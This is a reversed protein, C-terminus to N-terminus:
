LGKESLFKEVLSGLTPDGSDSYGYTVRVFPKNMTIIRSLDIPTGVVVVECDTANITAELDRVQADGYGMAPLIKGIGPYKAFTEKLSGKLYPRPDVIEAAGFNRAAVEAAGFKMEGHTTTPGDEVCLVKKGRLLSEDNVTVPSDALVIAAGPNLAGLNATLREIDAKEATDVKNVVVVDAMRVNYEGPYYRSEHGVRHPDAVVIHLDPRYFPLDNNGGDWLIIDAEKEAERLITEYDVGAFIILGNEIYPEYEEREEITCKHLAFDEYAAFRQCRQELLKGYPMPHRVAAVRLGRDRLLGAIRRSTQSKGCGTRVACVSIVPKTSPILTPGLDPLVFSAGAANVRSALSMLTGYAIDSYSFVAEEVGKEAILRQMDADEDYILIGEPYLRGALEAPYTRGVIYPIQAATFGVVEFEERDRYLTNFNHFDRGAAGLILVKRRSSM